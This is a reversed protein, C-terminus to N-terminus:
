FWIDWTPVVANKQTPKNEHSMIKTLYVCMVKSTWLNPLIPFMYLKNLQAKHSSYYLFALVFCLYHVFTVVEVINHYLVFACCVCLPGFMLDFITPNKKTESLVFWTCIDVRWWPCSFCLLSLQEQEFTFDKENSVFANQEGQVSRATKLLSCLSYFISLEIWDRGTPLYRHFVLTSSLRKRSAYPCGRNQCDMLAVHANVEMWCYRESLSSKSKYTLDRRNQAPDSFWCVSSSEMEYVVYESM